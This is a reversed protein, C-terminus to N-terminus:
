INVYQNVVSKILHIRSKMFIVKGFKLKMLEESMLSSGRPLAELFKFGAWILVIGRTGYRHRPNHFPIPTISFDEDTLTKICKM